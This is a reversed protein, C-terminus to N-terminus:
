GGSPSRAGWVSSDILTVDYMVVIVPGHSARDTEQVRAFFEPLAALDVVGSVVLRIEGEDEILDARFAEDV